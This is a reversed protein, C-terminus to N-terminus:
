VCNSITRTLNAANIRVKRKEVTSVPINVQTTAMDLSSLSTHSKNHILNLISPISTDVNLVTIFYLRAKMPQDYSHLIFCWKTTTANPVNTRSPQVRNSMNLTPIRRQDILFHKQNVRLGSLNIKSNKTLYTYRYKPGHCSLLPMGGCRRIRLTSGIVDRLRRM